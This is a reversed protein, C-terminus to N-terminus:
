DGPPATLVNTTVRGSFMRRPLTPPSPEPAHAPQNPRPGSRRLWQRDTRNSYEARIRLANLNQHEGGLAARLEDLSVRGVEIADGPAIDIVLASDFVLGEGHQRGAITLDRWRQGTASQWSLAAFPPQGMEINLNVAMPLDSTNILRAIATTRQWELTLAASLGPGRVVAPPDNTVQLEIANSQVRGIEEREMREDDWPPVYVFQLSYTGANLLPYRAWGRNLAEVRYVLTAGPALTGEPGGDIRAEIAEAVQPDATIDDVHLQVAKSRPGVVRLYDAVDLVGTVQRVDASLGTVPSVILPVRAPYASVNKFTLTLDITEDWSLRNRSAALSIEVGGFHIQEFVDLVSRARLAIEFEGTDAARRLAEVAPPGLACLEWTAQTRVEYSPDALRRILEQIHEPDAPHAAQRTEQALGVPTRIAVAVAIWALLLLWSRRGRLNM